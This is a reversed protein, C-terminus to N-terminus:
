KVVRLRERIRQEDARADWWDRKASEEYEDAWREARLWSAPYPCFKLNGEWPEADIFRELGEMIDEHTAIKRAQQYAKRADGPAKKRPYRQYFNEFSM